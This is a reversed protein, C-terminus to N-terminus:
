LAKHTNKLFVGITSAVWLAVLRALCEFPLDRYFHHKEVM